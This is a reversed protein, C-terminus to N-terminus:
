LSASTAGFRVLSNTPTDTRWRVILSTPTGSQLYPGRTLSAAVATQVCLACGLAGLVALLWCNDNHPLRTLAGPRCRGFVLCQLGPARVRSRPKTDYQSSSALLKPTLRWFSM